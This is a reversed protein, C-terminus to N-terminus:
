RLGNKDRYYREVKRTIGVVLFVVVALIAILGM